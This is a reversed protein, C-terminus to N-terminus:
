SGLVDDVVSLRHGCEGSWRKRPYPEVANGAHSSGREPFQHAPEARRLLCERSGLFFEPLSAPQGIREDRLQARVGPALMRFLFERFCLVRADRDDGRFVGCIGHMEPVRQVRREVEVHLAREQRLIRVRHGDDTRALRRMVPQGHRVPDGVLESRRAERDHAAHRPADVRLRMAASERCFAPGDRHESATDVHCVRGLVFTQHFLDAM